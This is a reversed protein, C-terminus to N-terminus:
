QMYMNYICLITYKNQMIVAQKKTQILHKKKHIHKNEM